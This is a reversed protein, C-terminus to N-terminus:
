KNEWILMSTLIQKLILHKTNLMAATGPSFITKISHFDNGVMVIQSIFLLQM